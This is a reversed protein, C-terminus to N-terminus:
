GMGEVAGAPGTLGAQSGVDAVLGNAEAAAYLADEVEGQALAGAAVWHGLTWAAHNLLNNRGPAQQGAVTRIVRALYDAAHRRERETPDRPVATSPLLHLEARMPEPELEPLAAPNLLRGEQCRAQPQVGPPHSPLYYQRSADNCTPDAEPCLAAHARRWIQSWQRAPVPVALPVVMRWRPRKATHQYTTHARYWYPELRAWDPEVRDCDFVLCSVSEVGANSRSTAGDAYRTPAWCRAQRKDTLEEFTTLLHSL